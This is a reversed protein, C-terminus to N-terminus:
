TESSGDDGDTIEKERGDAVRLLTDIVREVGIFPKGDIVHTPVLNDIVKGIFVQIAEPRPKRAAHAVRGMWYGDVDQHGARSLWCERM